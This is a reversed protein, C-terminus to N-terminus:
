FAVNLEVEVNTLSGKTSTGDAYYDRDNYTVVMTSGSSLKRKAQVQYFDMDASSSLGNVIKGSKLTVSTGDISTGVSWQSAGTATATTTGNMFHTTSTQKAAVSQAFEGSDDETLLSARDADLKAFGITYGAITTDVKTYTADGGSSGDVNKGEHRYNVGAMSGAIRYSDTTESNKKLEIANGALNFKVGAYMNNNINQNGDATSAAGASNGAYVDVGGVSYGLTVKRERGGNDIEGLIGGTGSAVNGATVTVDGVKTSIYNDELDMAGAGDTDLEFKMVVTTDGSKGTVNLHYETATSNSSVNTPTYSSGSIDVNDYEFKADGTISIDALAVASMSAAVAAAILQKKM